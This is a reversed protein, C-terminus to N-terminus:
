GRRRRAAAAALLAPVEAGARQMPTFVEDELFSGLDGLVAPSGDGTRGVVGGETYPAVIYTNAMCDRAKHPDAEVMVTNAAGFGGVVCKGSRWVRALDRKRAWRTAGGPDEATYAQDFLKLMGTRLSSHSTITSAAGSVYVPPFPAAALHDDLARVVPAVNKALKASYVAVECRPDNLLMAVLERAGPRVYFTNYRVTFAATPDGGRLTGGSDTKHVLTGNFDLLVLTKRIAAEADDGIDLSKMLAAVDAATATATAAAAGGTGRATRGRSPPM